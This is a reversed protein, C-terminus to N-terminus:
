PAVLEVSKGSAAGWKLLADLMIQPSTVGNSTVKVFNAEVDTDVESVGAELKGLIRKTASACGECTM